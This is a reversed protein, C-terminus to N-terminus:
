VLFTVFNCVCVVLVIVEGAIVLVLCRVSCCGLWSGGPITFTHNWLEVLVLM